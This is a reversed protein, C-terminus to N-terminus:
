KANATINVLKGVSANWDAVCDAGCREAWKPVVVTRMIDDLRKRDAASVEVLKMSAKNGATCADSGINCAIGQETENRASEWATVEWAAIEKDLLDRVKPDLNNWAQLNASMMVMSWGVPLEYLYGTVEHWKALNGSLAGTIACDVLGRQLGPVVEGFAMNVGTAGVSAVFESLSKSFTRIKKGKLDDLGSIPDRCYMMQAHFPYLALLKIGYKKEYVKNLSPKYADAINKAIDIDSSFGALDVAENEPDDGAVYGLVTSGFQIVGKEMLRFVEGGKLGMDTFSTVETKIAGNSVAPIHDAWFPQEREKYVSLNAWTGVFKVKTEPLDAAFASWSLSASLCVKSAFIVSKKM